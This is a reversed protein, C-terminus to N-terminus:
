SKAGSESVRKEPGRMAAATHSMDWLQRVARLAVPLDATELAKAYIERTAEICIGRVVAPTFRSAEILRTTVRLSLAAVDVDPWHERISLEIADQSKGEVVWQYVQQVMQDAVANAAVDLAAETATHSATDTDTAPLPVADIPLIAEDPLEPADLDSNAADDM